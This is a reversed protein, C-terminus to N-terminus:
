KFEPIPLWGLPIVQHMERDVWCGGAKGYRSSKVWWSAVYRVNDYGSLKGDEALLVWSGDRPATKISQWPKKM